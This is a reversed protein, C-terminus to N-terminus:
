RQVRMQLPVVRDGQPTRLTVGGRMEAAEGRLFAAAGAAADAFPVDQDVLVDSRQRARLRFGPREVALVTADGATVKLAIRTAAVEFSFPNYLGVLCHVNVAALGPTVTFDTLTVFTRYLERVPLESEGPDGLDVTGGIALVVAGGAALGEWLVPARNPDVAMVTEPVTALAVDFEARTEGGTATVDVAGPLPVKAAGLTLRQAAMGAVLPSALAPAHLTIHLADRTPAALVVRQLRLPAPAKAPAAAAAALLLGPLITM